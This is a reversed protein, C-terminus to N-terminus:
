TKINSFWVIRKSVSDTLNFTLVQLGDMYSVSTWSWSPINSQFGYLFDELPTLSTERFSKRSHQLARRVWYIPPPFFHNFLLCINQISNTESLSFLQNNKSKGTQWFTKKKRERFPKPQSKSHIEVDATAYDVPLSTQCSTQTQKLTISMLFLELWKSVFRAATTFPTISHASACDSCSMLCEHKVQAFTNRKLTSDHLNALVLMFCAMHIDIWNSLFDFM